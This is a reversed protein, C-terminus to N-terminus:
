EYLTAFGDGPDVLICKESGSIYNKKEPPPGGWVGGIPPSSIQNSKQSGNQNNTSVLISM